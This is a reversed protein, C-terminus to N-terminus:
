VSVSDITKGNEMLFARDNEQNIRPSVGPNIEYGDEANRFVQFVVEARGGNNDPFHVQQIILTGEYYETAGRIQADAVGPITSKEVRGQRIIKLIM